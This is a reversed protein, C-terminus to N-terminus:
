NEFFKFVKKKKVSLFFKKATFNKLQFYFFIELFTGFLIKCFSEPFLCFEVCKRLSCFTFHYLFSLKIGFKYPFKCSVTTERYLAGVSVFVGCLNRYNDKKNKVTEGEEGKRFFGSFDNIFSVSTKKREVFRKKKILWM